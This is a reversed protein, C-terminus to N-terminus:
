RRVRIGQYPSAVPESEQFSNGVSDHGQSNLGREQGLWVGQLIPKQKSQLVHSVRHCSSSDVNELDDSSSDSGEQTGQSSQSFRYSGPSLDSFGVTKQLHFFIRAM